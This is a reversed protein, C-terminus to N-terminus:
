YFDLHKRCAWDDGPQFDYVWCLSVTSAASALPTVTTTQYCSSPATWVSTIPGLNTFALDTIISPLYFTQVIPATQPGSSSMKFLQCCFIRFCINLSKLFFLQSDQSTERGGSAYRSLGWHQSLLWPYPYAWTPFRQGGWRNGWTRISIPEALLLGERASRGVSIAQIYGPNLNICYWHVFKRGFQNRRFM